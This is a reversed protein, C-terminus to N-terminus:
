TRRRDSGRRAAKGETEVKRESPPYQKITSGIAQLIRDPRQTLEVSGERAFVFEPAMRSLARCIDIVEEKGFTLKSGKRLATWLSAYEVIESPAEDQEQWITQLIEKYHHDDRQQAVMTDIWKASEEPTLCDQFLQRIKGLHIRKLPVLRVLRALDTVRILTITKGSRKNDAKIEKVLASTRDKTTPFDPGVVLAHDCKYDDRQRAIASIGVTKASVKKSPDIKSKAELSVTYRQAQGPSAASLVATALGDPNGAGGKPIAQFGMCDFAAVLENELKNKDTVSDMLDQAIM